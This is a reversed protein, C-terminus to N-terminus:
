SLKTRKLDQLKDQIQSDDQLSLLGVSALLKCTYHATIRLDPNALLLLRSCAAIQSDQHLKDDLDQHLRDLMRGPLVRNSLSRNSLLEWGILGCAWCDVAQGHELGDQQEPALYLITGCRDYRNVKRDSMSGFDTIVPEPPNYTRILINEPKVDRHCLGKSHLFAVAEILKAFFIQRQTHDVDSVILSRLTANHYPMFITYEDTINGYTAPDWTADLLSRIRQIEYNSLCKVHRIELPQLLRQHNFSRILETMKIENDISRAVVKTKLLQKAAAVRGRADTVLYVTGYTGRAMAHHITWEGLRANCEAPTPLIVPTQDELVTRMFAGLELQFLDEQEPNREVYKLVFVCEGFQIMNSPPITRRDDTIITGNLTCPNGHTILFFGAAGKVWSFRAHIGALGHEQDVGSMDLLLDVGRHMQHAQLGRSTAEAYQRGKGIRWGARPFCPQPQLALEFCLTSEGLLDTEGLFQQHHADGHTRVRQVAARALATTPILRAFVHQSAARAGVQADASGSGTPAHACPSSDPEAQPTDPETTSGRDATSDMDLARVYLATVPFASVRACAYLQVIIHPNSTGDHLAERQHQQSSTSATGRM